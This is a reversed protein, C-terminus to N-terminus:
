STVRGVGRLATPLWLLCSSINADGAGSVIYLNQDKVRKPDAVMAFTREILGEEKAACLAYMADVQTSPNPPTDYVELVKEYEAVSGDEVAKSFIVRQLDPTIRSDDNAELFPVFRAKLEKIVGADGGNAAAAVALARLEKEDPTDTEKHEYGVKDVVARFLKARIGNIANRIRDNEWWVCVISSLFGAVQRFPLYETETKSLEVVLNLSGSTKAYGASALAAADSVLGLRDEISFSQAQQGLKILREPSYAVRYVGITDANIKFSDSAIQYMTSRSSLVADHDVTAKGDSITKIELPVYWLTEDEDAKVDGTALFRNQTLKLNGGYEEVTIVPFGVKLTWDAMMTGIDKGVAESLGAWLDATEASGYLHKKLYISVGKFFKDDGVVGKLMRLVSAGKSYSIADFISNIMSSDPCEVEIPHSTRRADLNLARVWHDNLFETGMKWDPFIRDPLVISGM